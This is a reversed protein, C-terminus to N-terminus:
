KALLESGIKGFAAFTEKAKEVLLDKDEQSFGIMNMEHKFGTWRERQKEGYRDFYTAGATEPLSLGARLSKALFKAGNTSGELVYLFGLLGSPHHHATERMSEILVNTANVPKAAEPTCGFHELDRTVCSLDFHYDRVVREVATSREKAEDLLNALSQHMLYLQQLYNCYDSPQVKGSGLLHQFENGEASSHLEKTSERLLDMVCEQTDTAPTNPGTNM